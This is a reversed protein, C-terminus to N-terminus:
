QYSRQIRVCVAGGCIKGNPLITLCEDIEVPYIRGCKLCIWEERFKLKFSCSM